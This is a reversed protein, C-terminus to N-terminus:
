KFNRNSKKRGFAVKRMVTKVEGKRGEGKRMVERGEERKEHCSKRERRKNKKKRFM